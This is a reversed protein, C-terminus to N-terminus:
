KCVKWTLYEGEARIMFAGERTLGTFSLDDDSVMLGLRIRYIIDVVKQGGTHNHGVHYHSDVVENNPCFYPSIRKDASVRGRDRVKRAHVGASYLTGHFVKNPCILVARERRAVSRSSM